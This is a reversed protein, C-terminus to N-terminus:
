KVNFRITNPITGVAFKTRINMGDYIIIEGDTNFNFSNAIWMSNDFFNIAIATWIDYKNPNSIIAQPSSNTDLLCISYIGPTLHEINTIGWTSNIFYLSDATQNFCLDYINTNWQRTINMTTPEYEILSGKIENTDSPLGWCIVYIKNNNFYIKMPNLATKIKDIENKTNIDIISITSATPNDYDLDGYGSNVVYLRQNISDYCIGEPHSGVKIKSNGINQQSYNLDSPNFYYVYYDSNSLEIYTSVFALTDSIIAIKRPMTRTPFTIRGKSKGDYINFVEITGAGSVSVFVLSDLLVIDNANDGIKLNINSKKFYYNTYADNDFNYKTISANDTGRLGENLIFCCNYGDNNENENPNNPEKVCGYILIVIFLCLIKILDNKIM